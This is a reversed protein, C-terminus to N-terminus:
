NESRAFAFDLFTDTKAVWKSSLAGRKKWGEYM